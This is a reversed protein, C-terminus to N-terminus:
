VAIIKFSGTSDNIKYATFFGGAGSRHQVPYENYAIDLNKLNDLYLLYHDEQTSLYKYSLDYNSRSASSLSFGFMGSSGSSRIQNKVMKNMWLMEGSASIKSMFMEKYHYHYTTTTSKTSANYSTSQTVYYVEGLVILSGDENIILRDLDLEHIGVEKGKDEKRENKKQSRENKNQNIIELPIDHFQEKELGAEGLVSVYIGNASSGEGYFGACYIKGGKGEQLSIGHPFYKGEAEIEIVEPASSDYFRHLELRPIEENKVRALLYVRGKSDITYGLNDMNAETYPMKVERKWVENMESDFVIM